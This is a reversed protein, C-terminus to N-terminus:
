HSKKARVASWYDSLSVNANLTWGIEEMRRWISDRNIDARGGKPYAFWVARAAEASPLHADAKTDLDARDGVFMVLVQADAPESCVTVDDPLPSLLKRWEDDIGDLFLSDGVKVTLKEPVSKAM